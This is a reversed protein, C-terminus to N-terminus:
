CIKVKLTILKVIRISIVTFLLLLVCAYITFLKIPTDIFM